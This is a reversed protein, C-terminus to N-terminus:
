RPELHALSAALGDRARDLKPDAALARQFRPIAEAHRGARQLLYAVNFHGAADAPDLAVAREFAEIASPFEERAALLFGICSWARHHHPDIRTVAKFLELARPQRKLLMLLQGYSYLLSPRLAMGASEVDRQVSYLEPM